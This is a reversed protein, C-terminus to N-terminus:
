KMVNLVVDVIMEGFMMYIIEYLEMVCKFVVVFMEEVFIVFGMDYLSMLFGFEFYFLM